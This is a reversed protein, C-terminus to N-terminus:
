IFHGAGIYYLLLDVSLALLLLPFVTETHYAPIHPIQVAPAHPAARMEPAVRGALRGPQPDPPPHGEPAAGRRVAPQHGCPGGPGAGAASDLLLLPAPIPRGPPPPLLRGPDRGPGAAPGPLAGPLCVRM